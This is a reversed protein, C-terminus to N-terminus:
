AARRLAESAAPPPPTHLNFQRRIFAVDSDEIEVGYLTYDTARECAEAFTERLELPDELDASLPLRDSILDEPECLNLLAQRRMIGSGLFDRFPILLECHRSNPANFHAKM